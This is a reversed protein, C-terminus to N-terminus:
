INNSLQKQRQLQIKRKIQQKAKYLIPDWAESLTICKNVAENISSYISEKIKRKAWNKEQEVIIAHDTNFLCQFRNQEIHQVMESKSDLKNILQFHEGMRKKLGVKTEGNYIKPPNCDCQVQYVISKSPTKMTHNLYTQLKNPYSFYLKIKLKELRRKLVEIGPVYPLCITYKTDDNNVKTKNTNISQYTERILHEIEKEPYNSNILMIKLKNIDEQQEVPDRTTQIIRTTMNKVINTKISKGHCSQYHLLRDSATQKRFWRVKVQLQNNVVHKTLSTELFNISNTDEYECTFRITSRIDNLKNVYDKLQQENMPTIIMIDDVYRWFKSPQNVEQLHKKIYDDMYLDALLPSLTNGM